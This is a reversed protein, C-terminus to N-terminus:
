DGKLRNGVLEAIALSATLGPSEIGFLNILGRIGHNAECQICFDEYLGDKFRIKPRLGSYDAHLKNKDISPWYRKIREVFQERKAADVSYDVADLGDREVAPLWEVDPGFRAAGSLDLTLHVGLGGEEPVPYILQQFPVKGSYSFYSGKAFVPEPLCSKPFVEVESLLATSYLGAANVLQSCAVIANQGVLELEFSDHSVSRIAVETNPLFTAGHMESENLLSQMYAHSDIIGTSPSLLASTAALEPALSHLEKSGLLQLDGVGNARAQSAISFLQDTQTSNAAVILKGCRAFPLSHEELYQYLLRKGRVCLQAKLSDSPYYIGAHIVESNRSSTLRGFGDEKELIWVSRGSMALARAVALGVVGAGIVVTDLSYREMSM